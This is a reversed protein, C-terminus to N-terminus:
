ELCGVYSTCDSQALCASLRGLEEDSSAVRNPCQMAKQGCSARKAAFDDCWKQSAATPSLSATVESICSQYDLCAKGACRAADVAFDGRIPSTRKAQDDCTKLCAAHDDGVSCTANADCIARCLTLAQEATAPVGPAPRQDTSSSSCGFAGLTVLLLWLTRQMRAESCM